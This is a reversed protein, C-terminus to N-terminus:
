NTSLTYTYIRNFRFILSYISRKYNCHMRHKKERGNWKNEPTTHNLSSSCDVSSVSISFDIGIGIGFSPLFIHNCWAAASVSCFFFLGVFWVSQLVIGSFDLSFVCLFYFQLTLVSIRAIQISEGNLEFVWDLLQKNFIIDVIAFIESQIADFHTQIWIDFHLCICKCM